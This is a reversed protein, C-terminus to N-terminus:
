GHGPRSRRVARREPATDPEPDSAVYQDLARDGLCDVAASEGTGRPDFGVIDFSDLLPDGFVLGSQAAYDTGPSGPGGPNVM